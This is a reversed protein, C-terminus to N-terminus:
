TPIRFLAPVLTEAPGLVEEQFYPNHPTMPELNLLVTLAGAYQAARAFGSAPAVTGSTGIAVFLDCERLVRKARHEADAPLGEGFLVVGPRLVGDCRPCRPLAEDVMPARYDCATSACRSTALGGHLEILANM